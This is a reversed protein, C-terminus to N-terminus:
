FFFTKNSTKTTLFAQGYLFTTTTTTNTRRHHSSPFDRASLVKSGNIRGPQARCRGYPSKIITIINNINKNNNDNTNNRNNYMFYNLITRMITNNDSDNETTPCEIKKM